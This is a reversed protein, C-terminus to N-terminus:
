PVDTLALDTATLSVILLTAALSCVSEGNMTSVDGTVLLRKPGPEEADALTVALIYSCGAEVARRCTIEQRIHVPIRDRGARKLVADKIDPHLLWTIPYTFLVSTRDAVASCLDM